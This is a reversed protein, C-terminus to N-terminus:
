GSGPAPSRGTMLAEEVLRAAKGLGDSSAITSQCWQAKRRAESDGLVAEVGARLRASTLEAPTVVRGAGIWELRRAVGPQDNAIPIAVMPIGCALSELVTNLGAHTIVVSARKLLEPQPASPVIIPKGSCRAALASPDRSADGLSIVLQLDLGALGEAIAVFLREIRNQLTGLSAYVLPRGELREWPFAIGRGDGPRHWPGTYHFRPPRTRRPFDLFEPQQAIEALYTVRDPYRKLPLGRERRYDREVRAVPLALRRFLDNAIRNVARPLLGTRYRWPLIAPPCWPDPNLALANCVQVHPIGLEDAVTGGVPTVQDVILGDLGLQRGALYGDRLIIRASLRLMEITHRAASISRLRGLKATQGAVKDAAYDEVGLPHFGLGANVFRSEVDPRGLATIRHGRAVLERALTTIPNIHGTFEPCILGIHM